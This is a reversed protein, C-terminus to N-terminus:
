RSILPLFSFWRQPQSLEEAVDLATPALLIIIAEQAVSDVDVGITVNVEVETQIAEDSALPQLDEDALSVGMIIEDGDAVNEVVDLVLSVGNDLIDAQGEKNLEDLDLACQQSEATCPTREEQSISAASIGFPVNFLSYPSSVFVFHVFQIVIFRSRNSEQSFSFSDLLVVANM